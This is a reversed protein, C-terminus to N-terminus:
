SVSGEFIISTGWRLVRASTWQTPMSVSSSPRATLTGSAGFNVGGAGTRLIECWWGDPCRVEYSDGSSPAVSFPSDLRALKSTGTYQVISRWQGSAAGSTLKLWRRLYQGDTGSAGGGLLVTGADTVGSLTGTHTSGSFTLTIASPNDCEFRCGTFRAMASEDLTQTNASFADTPFLESDSASPMIAGRLPRGYMDVHGSVIPGASSYRVPLGAFSAAWSDATDPLTNVRDAAASFNAQIGSPSPNPGTYVASPDIIRTM